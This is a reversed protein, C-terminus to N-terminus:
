AANGGRASEAQGTGEGEEEEQDPDQDGPTGPMPLPDREDESEEPAQPWGAADRLHNELERDPFLPAGAGSLARIFEGLQGLDPKEVDGHQFTPMIKPDMGNLHWIRPLLDRNLVAQIRELFTGLATSFLATKDSSLAFSGVADQGLFIFDALLTTAIRRDYRDIIATTDFQRSSGTSLLEVEFFPNGNEDRDSPIVLGENKDRRINQAMTRYHQALRKENEDADLTLLSGPVRVVPYGALDREVGIGEIEEIKKKMVWPRYCNRLLSRGEPNNKRATTRFLLLKNSPIVAVPKHLPQQVVGMISGTKDILWRDISEQGRLAIKHLGVKGDDHQSTTGDLRRRGRRYKYVIEFPAHGYEFMSCVEAIFDQWPHEMDDQLSEVFAAAEEAAPTDDARQVNWEVQEILKGFAFLMAGIVPDNDSMERYKRLGRKGSLEPLWEETVYGGAENLGTGGVESTDLKRIFDPDQSM